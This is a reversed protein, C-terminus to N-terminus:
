LALMEVPEPTPTPEAKLREVETRLSGIELDRRAIEINFRRREEGIAAGVAERFIDDREALAARVRDDIFRAWQKSLAADRARQSPPRERREIPPYDSRRCEDLKLSAVRALTARAADFVERARDDM